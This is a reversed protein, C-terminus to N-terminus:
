RKSEQKSEIDVWCMSVCLLYPQICQFQKILISLFYPILLHAWIWHNIQSNFLFWIFVMHPNSWELIILWIDLFL